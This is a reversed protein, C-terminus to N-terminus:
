GFTNESSYTIYLFGDDNKHKDYIESLSQNSICMQNNITVFIAENPKLNIKKRIIYIFQNIIMDKQVLFKSKDIDPLESDKKKKVIIPIRNPYKNKIREFENM